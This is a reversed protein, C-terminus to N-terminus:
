APPCTPPLARRPSRSSPSSRTPSRPCRSSSANGEVKYTLAADSGDLKVSSIDNAGAGRLTIMGDAPWKEIGLYIHSDDVM